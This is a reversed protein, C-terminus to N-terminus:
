GWVMRVVIRCLLFGILAGVTNIILDDIDTLRNNLLQSLEILLSLGIISTSFEFM